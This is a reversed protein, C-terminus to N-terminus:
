WKLERSSKSLPEAMAKRISERMGPVSLEDLPNSEVDLRGDTDAVITRECASLKAPASDIDNKRPKIKMSSTSYDAYHKGRVGKGIDERKYRKRM